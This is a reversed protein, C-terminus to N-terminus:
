CNEQLFTMLEESSLHFKLSGQHSVSIQGTEESVVIAAVGYRETVGVAARHRLGVDSPLNGKESLPLICSAAAVRGKSIILAGDHLPANRNFISEILRRSVVADLLTGTGILQELGIDGSLVMLCGTKDRSMRLLANYLALIQRDRDTKTGAKPLLLWSLLPSRKRLTTNGLFFLFRRIEPQFVIVLIIVGVRIFQNLLGSMWQMELANVAWWLFFLLFLGLFLGYGFNGRLLNYIQFVVFGFLMFDLIDLVTFSWSGVQFAAQLPYWVSIIM